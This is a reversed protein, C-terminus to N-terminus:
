RKTASVWRWLCCNSMPSNISPLPRRPANPPKVYRSSLKQLLEIQFEPEDPLAAHDMSYRDRYDGLFHIGNGQYGLFYPKDSRFFRQLLPYLKRPPFGTQKARIQLLRLLLGYKGIQSSFAAFHDAFDSTVWIEMPLLSSPQSM